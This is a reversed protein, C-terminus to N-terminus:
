RQPRRLECCLCFLYEPKPRARVTAFVHDCDPTSARGYERLVRRQPKTLKRDERQAEIARLWTAAADNNNIGHGPDRKRPM